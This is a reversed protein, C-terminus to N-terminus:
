RTYIRPLRVKLNCSIEYNITGLINAWEDISIFEDGDQGLLTVIDGK